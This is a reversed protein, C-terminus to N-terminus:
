YLSQGLPRLEIGPLPLFQRKEVDELGARLGVWGRIWQTGPFTERPTFRSPCSASWEGGVLALTLFIHIQVDVGGYVKM